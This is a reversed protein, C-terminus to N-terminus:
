IVTMILYVVYVGAVILLWFAVEQAWAFRRLAHGPAFGARAFTLAGHAMVVGVLVLFGALLALPWLFIVYHFRVLLLLALGIFIFLAAAVMRGGLADAQASPSTYPEFAEDGDDGTVDPRGIGRRADYAGREEADGLVRYAENLSKMREEDGGRDPHHKVALRKYLREIESQSADSEAGLIEYYDKRAEGADSM